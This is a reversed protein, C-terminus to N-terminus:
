DARSLGAKTRLRPALISHAQTCAAQEIDNLHCAGQTCSCPRLVQHFHRRLHPLLLRNGLGACCRVKRSNGNTPWVASLQCSMVLGHHLSRKAARHAWKPAGNWCIQTYSIWLCSTHWPPARCAQLRLRPCPPQGLLSGAALHLLPRLVLPPETGAQKTGMPRGPHRVQEQDCMLIMSSDLCLVASTTVQGTEEADSVSAGAHLSFHEAVRAACDVQWRSAQSLARLEASWLPRAQTDSAPQISHMHAPQATHQAGMMCIRHMHISIGAGAEPWLGPLMMLVYERALLRVLHSLLKDVKHAAAPRCSDRWPMRRLPPIGAPIGLTRLPRSHRRFTAWPQRATAQMPIHHGVYLQKGTSVSLASAAVLARTGLQHDSHQCPSHM